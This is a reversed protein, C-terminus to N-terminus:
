RAFARRGNELDAANYAAPLAALLAAKEAPTPAPLAPASPPSAPANADRAPAQGQGCGTLVLATIAILAPRNM